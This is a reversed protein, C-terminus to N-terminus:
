NKLLKKLMQFDKQLLQKYKGRYLAAAPHLTPFIQTPFGLLSTSYFDGRVSTIGDFPLKVKSFLYETSYNGLTVITKPKIVQIQRDLYPTCQKIEQTRPKRNQPPRCKLINGIFVEQRSIGAKSLLKDLLDGASGVFPKGKVDEWRGPAEGIFFIDSEPSGEGPVTNKRNKWLKCKRCVRIEDAIAELIEKKGM